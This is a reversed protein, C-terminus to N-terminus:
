EISKSNIRENIIAEQDKMFCSFWDMFADDDLSTAASVDLAIYALYNVPCDVVRYSSILLTIEFLSLGGFVDRPLLSESILGRNKVIRSIVKTSSKFESVHNIWDSDISTDASSKGTIADLRSEAELSEIKKQERVSRDSRLSSCQIAKEVAVSFEVGSFYEKGFALSGVAGLFQLMEREADSYGVFEQSVWYDVIVRNGFGSKSIRTKPSKTKGTKIIGGDLLAVYIYGVKSM